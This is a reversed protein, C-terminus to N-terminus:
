MSESTNNKISSQSKNLMRVLLILFMIGQLLSIVFLVQCYYVFERFLSFYLQETESLLEPSSFWYKLNCGQSLACFFSYCSVGVSIIIETICILKIKTNKM